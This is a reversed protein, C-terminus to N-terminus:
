VVLWYLKKLKDEKEESFDVLFKEQQICEKGVDVTLPFFDIGDRVSKNAVTTVLVNTDGSTVVVSGPAQIALKGTEFAIESNGINVKVNDISM